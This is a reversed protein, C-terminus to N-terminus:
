SCDSNESNSDLEKLADNYKELDNRIDNMKMRVDISDQIGEMSSDFRRAQKLSLKELDELQTRANHLREELFKRKVATKEIQLSDALELIDHELIKAQELISKITESKLLADDRINKIEAADQNAKAIVEGLGPLKIKTIRNGLMLITGSFLGITAFTIIRTIDIMEALLYYSSLIVTLISISAGIYMLM